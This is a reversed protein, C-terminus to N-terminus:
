VPINGHAGLLYAPLLPAPGAPPHRDWGWGWGPPLIWDFQVLRLFHLRERCLTLKPAESASRAVVFRESLAKDPSLRRTTVDAGRCLQPNIKSGIIQNSVGNDTRGPLDDCGIRFMYAVM